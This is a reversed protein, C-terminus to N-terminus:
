LVMVSNEDTSVPSQIYKDAEWDNEYSKGDILYRFQYEKGKELSLTTKFEGAKFKKMPNATSKWNNFDGVVAVKKAEKAAELPLTLTVKCESKTKLYQKKIAM